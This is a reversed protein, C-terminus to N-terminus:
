YRLIAIYAKNLENVAERLATVTGGARIISGIAADLSTDVTDLRSLDVVLEDIRGELAMQSIVKLKYEQRKAQAAKNLRVNLQDLGSQYVPNMAEAIRNQREHPELSDLPKEIQTKLYFDGKALKRFESLSDATGALLIPKKEQKALKALADSLYSFYKERDTEVEDATTQYAHLLSGQRGPSSADMHTFPDQDDYINYFSGEVQDTNLPDLDYRNVHYLSVRDRGIDCLIAEDLSELYGLLTLVHFRNGIVLLEKPSYQLHFIEVQEGTAFVALGDTSYSWFATDEELRYLEDLADEWLRRPYKEKLQKEAELILNKFRIPDTDRDPPRRHTPIYLTIRPQNDPHETHLLRNLKERNTLKKDAM